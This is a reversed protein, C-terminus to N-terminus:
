DTTIEAGLLMSRFDDYTYGAGLLYCADQGYDKRSGSKVPVRLVGDEETLPSDKAPWIVKRSEWIEVAKEGVPLNVYHRPDTFREAARQVFALPLDYWKEWLFLSINNDLDIREKFRTGFTIPQGSVSLEYINRVPNRWGMYGPILLKWTMACEEFGEGFAEATITEPDVVLGRQEFMSALKRAVLRSTGVVKLAAPNWDYGNAECTDRIEKEIEPRLSEPIVDWYADRGELEEDDLFHRIPESMDKLQAPEMTIPCEPILFRPGLEREATDILDLMPKSQGIPFIIMAEDPGM